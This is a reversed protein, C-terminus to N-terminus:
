PLRVRVWLIMTLTYDGITSVSSPSIFQMWLTETDSVPVSEGGSGFIDSTAWVCTSKVFDRTPSFESPPTPDDNFIARLVFADAGSIYAPSLGDGDFINLGFQVPMTSNNTIVIDNGASMTYIDQADLSDPINWINTTLEIDVKVTDGLYNAFLKISSDMITTIFTDTPGISWNNFTYLSCLGAIDHGSVEIFVSSDSWRWVSASDVNDFVEGDFSIWGNSECPNKVVTALYQTWYLASLSEPSDAVLNRSLSTTDDSWRVFGYREDAAVMDNNSVSVSHSSGQRWWNEYRTSSGGSYITDDITMTGFTEAPLKTIVTRYASSYQAIADFDDNLIVSTTENAAFNWSDFIYASDPSLTDISSTAIEVTDGSNRWVVISDVGSYPTGDAYLWGQNHIPSKAVLLRAGRNYHAIATYARDITLDTSPLTIDGFLAGTPISSWNYFFYHIGGSSIAENDCTIEATSDAFYWNEGTLTPSSDSSGTAGLELWYQTLWNWDLESTDTITVSASNGIGSAPSIGGTGTWGTCLYREVASNYYISDISAIINEDPKCWVTGAPTPNGYPSVVTLPLMNSWQWFLGSANTPPIDLSDDASDSIEGFGIYGTCYFHNENDPSGAFASLTETSDLWYTGVFPNPLGYGSDNFIGIAVERVFFAEVSTDQSVLIQRHSSDVGDSWGIFIFREGSLGSATDPVSIQHVEGGNWNTSCPSSENTGDVSLSCGCSTTLIISYGLAPIFRAPVTGATFIDYKMSDCRIEGSVPVADVDFRVYFLTEPPTVSAVTAKRAFVRVRSTLDTGTFEDWAIGASPQVDLYTLSIPYFLDLAVSDIDHATIDYIIVPVSITTSPAGLVTDNPSVEYASYNACISGASAVTFIFPNDITDILGSWNTFHYRTGGDYAIASASIECAEGIGYDGDGLIAPETPIGASYLEIHYITDWIAAITMPSSVAFSAPNDITSIDGSWGAFDYRTLGDVVTQEVGISAISNKNYWGAGTPTGYDSNVTILYQTNWIANEMIPENVIVQAPNGGGTYSTSGLGNWGIFVRRTDGSLLITSDLGFVVNTGIPYFGSGFSTGYDSVIDLRALTDFLVRVTIPREAVITLPNTGITDGSVLWGAFVYRYGDIETTEPVFMLRATDSDDYFGTGEVTGWDADVSILVKRMWNALLTCSASINMTFEAASTDVAGTWESFEYRVIGASDVVLPTISITDVAGNAFWGEGSPTGFESQMVVLYEDRWYAVLNKPSDVVFTFPNETSTESGAWREFIKHQASNQYITDPYCRVIANAGDDYWGSGVVEGYATSVNVLYEASWQAIESTHESIIAYNALDTGTYSGSGTGTWGVFTWRSNVDSIINQEVGFFASDGAPYWNEGYVTGRASAIDLWYEVSFHATITDSSSLVITHSIAGSDSWDHFRLVEGVGILQESITSITHPENAFFATDLPSPYLHGDLAVYPSDPIDSQIRVPILDGVYVQSNSGTAGSISYRFDTCWMQSAGSGVVRFVAILLTEPPTAFYNSRSAFITVSDGMPNGSLSSWDVGDPSEEVRIYQLLSTPYYLDFQITNLVTVADNYLMIPVYLTEGIAGTINDVPSIEFVGYNATITKATDLLVTTCNSTSDAFAGGSWNTFHYRVEGVYVFQEASISVDTYATHYGAGDLEPETGSVGTYNIGLYFQKEWQATETIHSGVRIPAPNEDGTYSGSGTGNWGIFKWLVSDVISETDPNMEISVLEGADHWGSPTATSHGSNDIEIFYSTEWNAWISEAQEVVVMVASDYVPSNLGYWCEFVKKMTDTSDAVIPSISIYATDNENYWGEGSVAGYESTAHINYKKSWHAIIEKSATMLIGIPNSTSSTDGTWDTFYVKSDDDISVTEPAVGTWALSWSDYWGDGYVNDFESNVVLNYQVSWNATLTESAAIIFDFPNGSYSITGSWGTFIQRTDGAYLTEQEVYIHASDSYEYWGEGIVSGYTSSISVFFISDYNANFITDSIIQVTRTRTDIGDSWNDFVLKLGGNTITEPVSITHYSGLVATTDFPLSTTLNDWLLTTGAPASVSVNTLSGSVITGIGGAIGSLDGDLNKLFIETTGDDIGDFCVCIITDGGTLTLPSASTITIDLFLINGVKSSDLSGTFDSCENLDSFNLLTDAFELTFIATDIDIEAGNYIIPFCRNASTQIEGSQLSVFNSTYIAEIIKHGDILVQTNPNTSDAFIGDTWHSFREGCAQVLASINVWDGIEYFGDGSLAAESCTSNLELLYLTDWIATETIQSNAICSAPNNEGSYAGLGDGLWRIFRYEVTDTTIETPILDFGFTDSVDLWIEDPVTGYESLISVLYQQSYNATASFDSTPAITRIRSGGDSWSDFVFRSGDSSFQVAPAEITFPTTAAINQVFSDIYTNDNVLLTCGISTYISIHVIQGISLIGSNGIGTSFDGALSDLSVQSNGTTDRSVCILKFITDGDNLALPISSIGTLIAYDDNSHDDIAVTDFITFVDVIGVFDYDFSFKVIGTDASLSGDFIIPIIVYEGPASYITDPIQLSYDAHSSSYVATINHPADINITTSSSFRDAVPGNWYIFYFWISGDFVSDSASISADTSELYYGDGTITPVASGCGTYEITLRHYANWNAQEVIPGFVYCLGPNDTGAYSGSGTGTWETFLYYSEGDQVSDPNVSFGVGAGESYWGNGAPTGWDSLIDLYYKQAFEATISTDGIPILERSRNVDDTWDLFILQIEDLLYQVSDCNLSITDWANASYDVPLMTPAIDIYITADSHSTAIHVNVPIQILLIGTDTEATSIDRAPNQTFIQSNAVTSDLPELRINFITDGSGISVDGFARVVIRDSLIIYNLSDFPVSGIYASIGNLRSEDFGIELYIEDVLVSVPSDFLIPIDFTSFPVLSTDPPFVKIYFPSNGYVATITDPSDVISQSSCHFRDIVVGGLWQVFYFTDSGDVVFSDASINITDSENHWGEGILSPIASGCGTYEMTIYHETHWLAIVTDSETMWLTGPNAVGSYDGSWNDFIQRTLGSAEIVTEPAVSFTAMTHALYYGEGIATGYDSQVDLYFFSDYQATFITDSIPAVSRNRDAIGDAWDIFRLEIGTEPHYLSDAGITHSVGGLWDDSYPAAFSSGDVWVIGSGFDNTVVVAVTEPRVCVTGPFTEAGSFDYIFNMMNLPTCDYTADTPIIFRYYFLSEPPTITTTGPQKIFVRVTDATLSFQLETWPITAFQITDFQMETTDFVLDFQFSDVGVDIVADMIAPVLITDGRFAITSEPPFVQLEPDPAYYVTITIPYNLNVRTDNNTSDEFTGGSWHDFHYWVGDDILSDQAFIDVWTDPSHWGEGTLYPISDPVGSYLVTLYYMTDWQADELIPENVTITAINSSGTYSGSGSGVWGQFIHRITSDALFVTEPEVSINVNAGPTHWGDGTTTGYPSNLWVRYFQEFNATYTQATDGSIVEHHRTGGDSWSRYEYQVGAAPSQISDVELTHHDDAVWHTVYPSPYSTSDAIVDGGAFSTKVTCISTANYFVKLYYETQPSAMWAIVTDTNGLLQDPLISLAFWNESLLSTLDNVAITDLTIERDGAVISVGTCYTNGAIADAYLQYNNGVLSPRGNDLMDTCQISFSLPTAITTHISDTRIGLIVQDISATDPISATGFELIILHQVYSGFGGCNRRQAVQWDGTSNVGAPNLTACLLYDDYLCTGWVGLTSDMTSLAEIPIVVSDRGSYGFISIFSFLIFLLYLIKRM